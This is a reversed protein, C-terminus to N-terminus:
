SNPPLPKLWGAGVWGVKGRPTLVKYAGVQWERSLSMDNEEDPASRKSKIIILIEGPKVYDVDDEIDCRYSGWLTLKDVSSRCVVLSGPRLLNNRRM